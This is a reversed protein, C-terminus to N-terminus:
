PLSADGDFSDCEKQALRCFSSLGVSIGKMRGSRDEVQWFDGSCDKAWRISAPARDM